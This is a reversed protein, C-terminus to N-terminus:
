FWRGIAWMFFSSEWARMVFTIRLILYLSIMFGTISLVLGTVAVKPPLNEKKAKSRGLIGLVIGMIASVVALIIVNPIWRSHLLIGTKWHVLSASAAVVAFVGVSKSLKGTLLSVANASGTKLHERRVTSIVMATLAVISGTIAMYAGSSLGTGTGYPGNAMALFAISCIICAIAIIWDIFVPVTKKLLLLVGVAMGFLAFIFWPIMHPASLFEIAHIPSWRGAIYRGQHHSFFRPHWRRLMPMFFGIAVLLYGIKGIVRAPQLSLNKLLTAMPNNGTGMPLGCGQCVRAKDSVEKGCESCKILAM